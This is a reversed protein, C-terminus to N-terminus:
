KNDISKKLADMEAEVNKLKEVEPDVTETKETKDDTKNNEAFLVRAVIGGGGFIMVLILIWDFMTMRDLWFTTNMIIAALIILVSFGTFIKSMINGNTSFMWVVGIIFPIIVLGSPFDFGGIRFTGWGGWGAPGVHVRNFLIFLGVIMLALGAFFQGLTNKNGMKNRKRSILM